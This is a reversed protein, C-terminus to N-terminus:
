HGADLNAIFPEFHWAADISPIIKPFPFPKGIKFSHSRDVGHIINSALDHVMFDHVM